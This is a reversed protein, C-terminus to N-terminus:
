RVIIIVALQSVLAQLKENKYCEEQFEKVAKFYNRQKELLRNYKETV